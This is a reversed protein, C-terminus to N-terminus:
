RALRVMWESQPYVMVAAAALAIGYPIGADHRHLREAWNSGALLSPLSRTRFLLILLTLAGGL